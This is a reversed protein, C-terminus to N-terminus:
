ENSVIMRKTVSSKANGLTYIYIGADFDKSSLMIKNLGRQAFISKTYVVKGLLNSVKFTLLESVPSNFAIDTSKSFPNPINQGVEFKNNQLSSLGNLPDIIIRYRTIDTPLSAPIPGLHGYTTVNVTIPYTGEMGSTPATGQLLICANSGGPFHCSSPTCTYSFGSPLGVVGTIVVSDVTAPQSLYTTDTLVKLQIVTSYPSGILAHPLGTASDPYIGPETITVDPVCQAIAGTIVFSLGAFALLIKKM